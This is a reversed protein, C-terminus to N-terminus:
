HCHHIIKKTVVERPHICIILVPYICVFVLTVPLSKEENREDTQPIILEDDGTGPSFYAGPSFCQMIYPPILTLFFLFSTSLFLMFCCCVSGELNWVAKLALVSRSSQQEEDSYWDVKPNVLLKLTQM